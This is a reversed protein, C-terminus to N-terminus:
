LQKLVSLFMKLILSVFDFLLDVSV